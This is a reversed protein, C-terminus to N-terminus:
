STWEWLVHLTWWLMAYRLWRAFIRLNWSIERRYVGRYSTTRQSKEMWKTSYSETHSFGVRSCWESKTRKLLLYKQNAHIIRAMEECLTTFWVFICSQGLLKWSCRPTLLMECDAWPTSKERWPIGIPELIGDPSKKVGTSNRCPKCIWYNLVNFSRSYEGRLRTALSIRPSNKEWSTM